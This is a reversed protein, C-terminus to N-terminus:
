ATQVQDLNSHHHKVVQLDQKPYRELNYPSMQTTVPVVLGERVASRRGHANMEDTVIAVFVVHDVDM